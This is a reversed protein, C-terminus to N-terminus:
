LLRLTRDVINTLATRTASKGLVRLGYMTNLLFLALERADEDAAIEGDAQARCVADYLANEMRRFIGTVLATVEPDLGALEMAANVALCGRNGNGGTEEDVVTMLLIRVRDRLSGTEALLAEQRTTWVRDYHRLAEQFLVEKSSFTNYLSGRGLGTSDVLDQATTAMYGKSWFARMADDLVQDLDFQKPRAM